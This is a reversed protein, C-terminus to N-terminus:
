DDQMLENFADDLSKKPTPAEEDVDAAVQHFGQRMVVEQQGFAVAAPVSAGLEDCAHPPLRRQRHLSPQLLRVRTATPM